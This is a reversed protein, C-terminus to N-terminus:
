TISVNWGAEDILIEMLTRQLTSLGQCVELSFTGDMLAHSSHVRSSEQNYLNEMEQGIQEAGLSAREFTAMKREGKLYEAWKLARSIPKKKIPMPFRDEFM